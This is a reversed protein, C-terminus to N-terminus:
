SAVKTNIQLLADKTFKCVTFYTGYATGTLYDTVQCGDANVIEVTYDTDGMVFVVTDAFTLGDLTLTTGESWSGDNVGDVIDSVNGNKAYQFFRMEGTEVVRLGYENSAGTYTYTVTNSAESSIGQTDNWAVVRLEYTAPDLTSLAGSLDIETNSASTTYATEGNALLEYSEVDGTGPTIKLLDGDLTVTPAGLGTESSATVTYTLVNSRASTVSSSDICAVAYVTHAGVALGEFYSSLNLSTLLTKLVRTGDIFIEFSEPASGEGVTINLNTGTMTITPAGLTVTSEEEEDSGGSTIAKYTGVVGAITVGARINSPVLTIPKRIRVSSMLKGASASVTQDGYALSLTVVKAESESGAFSAPDASFGYVSALCALRAASTTVLNGAIVGIWVERVNHLLPVAVTDGTFPVDVYVLEGRGFDGRYVFRATKEPYASWEADFTFTVSTDTNDCVLLPLEGGTSLVEAVRNQIRIHFKM